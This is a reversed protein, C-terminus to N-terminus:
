YQPWFAIFNTWTVDKLKNIPYSPQSDVSQRTNLNLLIIWIGCVLLDITDQNVYPDFTMGVERTTLAM